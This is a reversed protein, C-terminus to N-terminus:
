KRHLSRDFISARRTKNTDRRKIDDQTCHASRVFGFFRKMFILAPRYFRGASIM